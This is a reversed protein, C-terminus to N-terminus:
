EMRRWRVRDVVQRMLWYLGTVVVIEIGVFWWLLGLNWALLGAGAIMMALIMLGMLMLGRGAAKAAEGPFSLPVGGGGIGVMLGYLPLAVLGPLMLGLRWWDKSMVLAIVVSAAVLPFALWFMVAKRSGHVLPGPGTMPAARFVDSAQWHASYRMFSVGIAPVLGVFAGMSALGFGSRADREQALFILPMVMMPALGPYVRLKVDRDRALYASTLLFAAREVPNRLWWSLPWVGVIRELWRRRAGKNRAQVENFTQMGTEYSRALKGFALAMVLGTAAVGCAALAWSSQAGSGALADDMGAFWAPPLFILWWAGSNIQIMGGAGAGGGPGPTFLLRPLIQGALVAALAVVVQAATMMGEVRERGFWRLCVQYVVVVLGTCFLAELVTSVAHVVPFQWGGDPAFVGTVMGALNFAAAIWLSVEALVRIKAWLFARPEIPRHLLIEAEDKNFLIEGASAAVFMGLFVFTMAHLYVSLAMVRQGSMAFALLGLLGYLLLTGWLKRGVSRPAQEKELGRSSRGRLFLTLFLRRLTASVPLAKEENVGQVQV